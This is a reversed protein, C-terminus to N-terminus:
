QRLEQIWTDFGPQRKSASHWGTSYLRVLPAALNRQVDGPAYGFQQRFARLLNAYSGFGYQAALTTLSRSEDPEDLLSHIRALRRSQIYKRAGGKDELLEELQTRTMRLHRCIFDPSLQSCTLQTDIFQRVKQRQLALLSPQAQELNKRSPHLCAALLECTANAIHPAREAAMAPLRRELSGFHDAILGANDNDLIKGHLNEADPVLTDMIDRPVVLSVNEAALAHTHLPQSLDLISVSGPRIDIEDTGLVGVYGGHRYLQVLYHDMNDRRLQTPTRIFQQPEFRCNVLVLEGLHFATAEANFGRTIDNDRPAVNFIASIRDQWADFQDGADHDVTRFTTSAVTDRDM